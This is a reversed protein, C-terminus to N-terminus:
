QYYENYERAKLKSGKPKDSHKGKRKEWADRGAMKPDDFGYDM